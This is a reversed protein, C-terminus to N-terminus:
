PGQAAAKLEDVTRAMTIQLLEVDSFVDIEWIRAMFGAPLRAMRDMTGISAVLDGDAYVGVTATAGLASPIPVLLDGGVTVEGISTAALDGGIGTPDALLAANVAEAADIEAQRAAAAAATDTGGAGTSTEILIAGFTDPRPLVFQKSRWYLTHPSGTASDFVNVTSTAATLFFAQGSAIDYYWADAKVSSRILFSQQGLDIILSGSIQNGDEDVADYSGIWRSEIQGGRMTGPNLARWDRPAFLNLTALGISGDARAVALGDASPWAIAFGLDVIGRANICPLNAEMKEMVMSDPSSGSVRYPWRDTLVYLTTGNAGLGIITSDTTLVYREPWAHPRYPECFYLKKGAFAAMMGNPLPILGALDAPPPDWYRSPLAEVFDLVGIKDEYNLSSVDREAIFYFDTGVSGTQSRYFRQRTIGRAPSGPADQIGSLTVDQGPQGSFDNSVPSPVSEEGLSTVYTYVYAQTIVNGAGAGSVTAVPAATPALVELDYTTSGDVRLKPKGVGTYYLRDDAVPGPAAHVTGPFGLWTGDHLVITGFPPSGGAISTVTTAQRYPTLAGNDLRADIASQAGTAPLLRDVVRPQEGSFAALKIVAM